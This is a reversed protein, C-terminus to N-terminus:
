PNPQQIIQDAAWMGTEIASEFHPLGMYDGALLVRHSAPRSKRYEALNRSRGRSRYPYRMTGDSSDGRTVGRQACTGVPEAGMSSRTLWGVMWTECLALEEGMGRRGSARLLRPGCRTAVVSLDAAGIPSCCRDTKLPTQIDLRIVGGGSVRSFLSGISRSRTFCMRCASNDRRARAVDPIAVARPVACSRRIDIRDRRCLCNSKAGSELLDFRHVFGRHVSYSANSFLCVHFARNRGRGPSFRLRSSFRYASAVLGRSDPAPQSATAAKQRCALDDPHRRTSDGASGSVAAQDTASDSIGAPWGARSGGPLDGERLANRLDDDLLRILLVGGATAVAFGGDIAHAAFATGLALAGIATRMPRRDGDVFFALGIAVLAFAVPTGRGIQARLLLTDAFLLLAAMGGAVDGMLARGLRYTAFIILGAMPVMAATVALVGLRIGAGFGLFAYLLEAGPTQNTPSWYGYPDNDFPLYRSFTLIRQVAAPINLADMYPPVPSGLEVPVTSVAMILCALLALKQGTSLPHVELTPPNRALWVVAAILILWITWSRFLGIPGLLNGALYAFIWTGAAGGIIADSLGLKSDIRLLVLGTVATAFAWFTWLRLAAWATTPLVELFGQSPTNWVWDHYGGRLAWVSAVSLLVVGAGAIATTTLASTRM